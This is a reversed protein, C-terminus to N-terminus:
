DLELIRDMFCVDRHVADTIYLKNIADNGKTYSKMQYTIM